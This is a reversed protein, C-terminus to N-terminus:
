HASNTWWDAKAKVYRLIMNEVPTPLGPVKWPINAKWCRWAESLHQLIVRAKNQKIGEPMMDLIDHMVAAEIRAEGRQKMRKEFGTRKRKGRGRQQQPQNQQPQNQEAPQVQEQHEQPQNQEPHEQQPQDQEAPQVQEPHEQPQHQEPQPQQQLIEPHESKSMKHQVDQTTTAATSSSSTSTSATTEINENNPIKDEKPPLKPSQKKPKKATSSPPSIEGYVPSDDSDYENDSFISHKRPAPTAATAPMNKPKQTSTTAAATKPTPIHPINAATTTSSSSTSPVDSINISVNKSINKEVGAYRLLFSHIEQKEIITNTKIACQRFDCDPVQFSFTYIYGPPPIKNEFICITPIVIKKRKFDVRIQRLVSDFSIITKTTSSKMTGNDATFEVVANVVFDDVM